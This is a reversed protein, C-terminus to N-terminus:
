RRPLRSVVDRLARTWVTLGIEALEGAAQVATGVVGHEESPPRRPPHSGVPVPGPRPRKRPAPRRRDGASSSAGVPPDAAGRARPADPTADTPARAPRRRSRRQPRTRPLSTLIERDTDSMAGRLDWPLTGSHFRAAPEGYPMTVGATSSELM